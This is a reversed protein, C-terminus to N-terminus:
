SLRQPTEQHACPKTQASQADRSPIPNSELHLKGGEVMKRPSRRQGQVHRIKKTADLMRRLDGNVGGYLWWFKCLVPSVSSPLWLCFRTHVLDWSFPATVGCSVSGSMDMLVWSDGAFTHTLPSRSCPQPCQTCYHMCLVKQLLDVNDEKGGGYNPWLDFM